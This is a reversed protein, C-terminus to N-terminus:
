IEFMSIQKGATKDEYEKMYSFLKKFDLVINHGKCKSYMIDILEKEKMSKLEYSNGYTKIYREKMGKFHEDLKKYYYQRDGDRLTLGMGFTLIGYVNAEICYDIIGSINEPTDNIFPLVPTLWVITPIGNDQLIKLVEARRKTTCVNPEVIRCLNEDYTTLTMQVICKAKSNISKLIDIDRLILDSKTLVAVGFGYRDIVELCKRTLCLKKEIHLYPDSMAGTFIMCKQRKRKLSEELLEVANEKVEIDEFKHQMDYCTSRSDCYICGHSCGRYINMGNKSSLISKVRKYHM